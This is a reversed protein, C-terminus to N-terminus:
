NAGGMGGGGATSCPLSESAAIGSTCIGAFDGVPSSLCLETSSCDSNCNCLSACVGTDGSGQDTGVEFAFFACAVKEASLKEFGCGSSSGIRCREECFGETDSTAACIGRCEDKSPDCISGNELGDRAKSVCEGSGLDCFRGDTCDSDAGCRPLCGGLVKRCEGSTTAGSTVEYCGDGADCDSDSQCEVGTRVLTPSCSFDARGGCKSTDEGFDCALVCEGGAVTDLCFSGKPCDESTVCTKTCLGGPPGGSGLFPEEEKHCVLGKECENSSCTVGLERNGAGGTGTRSGGTGTTEGDSKGSSCAFGTLAVLLLLKFSSLTRM